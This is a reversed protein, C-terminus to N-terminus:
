PALTRRMMDIFIRVAKRVKAEDLDQTLLWSDMAQGMGFVVAILLGSPVDKRVARARRGATIAQEFWPVLAAEMEKQAQQLTPNASAVLWDRALAALQPSAALAVMMRRYYAELTSWFADPDQAAPVPFPGASEFLRGLEGRAVHAYLAAKDDFYYYMSGKSIGAADIIRNLSAGNFGHTAFEDLAARHIAQQQAPPLKHFRPRPM